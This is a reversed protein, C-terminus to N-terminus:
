HLAIVALLEAMLCERATLIPHIYPTSGFAIIMTLALRLYRLTYGTTAEILSTLLYILKFRAELKIQNPYLFLRNLKIQNLKSRNPNIQINLYGWKEGLIIGM